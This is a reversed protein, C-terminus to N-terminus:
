TNNTNCHTNPSQLSKTYPKPLCVASAFLGQATARVQPTHSPPHRRWCITNAVALPKSDYLLQNEDMVNGISRGLATRALNTDIVCTIEKLAHLGRAM